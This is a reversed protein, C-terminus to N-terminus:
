GPAARGTGHRGSALVWAVKELLVGSSFPKQVFDAEAVPAFNGRGPTYGSMHLVRVGPVLARVQEALAAGSSGPLVSDTLLLDVEQSSAAAVAEDYGGATVTVYGHSRLVRSTVDLLAPEDDVVLVVEGHGRAAGEPASGAEALAVDGAAAPLSIRFTTGQGQVTEVTMSGGMGTIIGHVTALGLGTGQDAEKTTFFPEFVRGAVEPSMGTGTDTVALEVSGADAGARLPGELEGGSEAWATRITLVGSGCMADRANVALNLLV